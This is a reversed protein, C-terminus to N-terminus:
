IEMSKGISLLTLNKGKEQFIAKAKNHNIAIPEYTDYHVGLISSCQVFDSCVVAESIDMTFNGGIPLVALDLQHFMPILKMDMTLATDGSIYISKGNSTIVFGVPNGGYTGDPFSSSHIASVVKVTGFDFTWSGGPNMGHGQYNKKGYYTVIEHNSILTAGTRSAISEVDMVHDYHAHTLMIYDAKLANIDIATAKPNQSIFPDVL